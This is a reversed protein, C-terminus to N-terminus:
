PNLLWAVVSGLLPWCHGAVLNNSTPQTTIVCVARQPESFKRLSNNGRGTGQSNSNEHNSEREQLHYNASGEQLPPSIVLADPSRQPHLRGSVSRRRGSTVVSDTLNQSCCGVPMSTKTKRNQQLPVHSGGFPNFFCLPTFVRERGKHNIPCM